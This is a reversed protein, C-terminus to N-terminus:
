DPFLPTTANTATVIVDAQALTEALVLPDPGHLPVSEVHQAWDDKHQEMIETALDQARSLTRNVITVHPIPRGLAASIAQIHLRAQLGAGM